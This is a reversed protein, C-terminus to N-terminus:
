LMSSLAYLRREIYWTQTTIVIDAGDCGQQRTDSVASQCLPHGGYKLWPMAVAHSGSGSQFEVLALHCTGSAALPWLLQLLLFLVAGLWDHAPLAFRHEYFVIISFMMPGGTKDCWQM